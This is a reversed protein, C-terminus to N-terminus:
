GITEQKPNPQLEKTEKDLPHLKVAKVPCIRRCELCKICDSSDIEDIVNLGTPCVKNCANCNICATKNIELKLLSIRNFMGLFAGIPCGWSCFPRKFVVMAILFFVLISFKWVFLKGLQDRLSKNISYLPLLAGGELTGAPCLYKCFGPQGMKEADTILLPFLVVLLILALFKGWRLIKPASLKPGPFKNLLDQFYGFPCAWGCTARGMLSGFFTLIGIVFFPIGSAIASFREKLSAGASVESFGNALVNQVAGLPCSFLAGPCSYCNLVPICIRKSFGKFISGNFFGKLNGNILISFILQIINRNKM